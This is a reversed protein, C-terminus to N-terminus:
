GNLSSRTFQPADTTEFLSPSLRVSTAQVLEADAPATAAVLAEPTMDIRYFTASSEPM